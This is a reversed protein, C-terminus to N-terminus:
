PDRTDFFVSLHTPWVFLINLVIAHAAYEEDAVGPGFPVSGTESVDVRVDLTGRVKPSCHFAYDQHLSDTSCGYTRQLLHPSQTLAELSLSSCWFRVSM